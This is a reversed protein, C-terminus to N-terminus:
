TLPPGPPENWSLLGQVSLLINFPHFSNAEFTQYMVEVVRAMSAPVKGDMSVVLSHDLTPPVTLTAVMGDIFDKLPDVGKDANNVREDREVCNVDWTAGVRCVPGRSTYVGGM